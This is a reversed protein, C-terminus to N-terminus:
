VGARFAFAFSSPLKTAVLPLWDRVPPSTRPWWRPAFIAALPSFFHGGIPLFRHGNVRTCLVRRSARHECARSRTRLRSTAGGKGGM